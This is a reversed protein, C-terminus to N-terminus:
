SLAKATYKAKFRETLAFTIPDRKRHKEVIAKEELLALHKRTMQEGLELHEAIDALTAYGLLGFSEYQMLMSVICGGQEKLGEVSVVREVTKEIRALAQTKSALREELQGQAEQVLELMALTFFTLEGRNLPKEATKFARYYTERNEAIVRSLSLATATSLSESLALSLLYRGTRGNGDYFPHIYEFLYHTAIGRLLAPMEPDRGIQLMLDIADIIKEEPELGRHVIRGGGQIIEVGQMRFLKGDPLRDAPIEGQTVKDYIKRIDRSTEPKQATGDTIGLYLTAFERFRKASTPAKESANLADNVQQKTSRIEEIANTSVVEDLVLGRLAARAAVSPLSNLLSSVRGETHLVSESSLSLQRPMAIFLEGHQTRFGLRFTSEAEFRRRYEKEHNADRSNSADAYYIKSLERYEM